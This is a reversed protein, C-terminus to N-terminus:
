FKQFNFHSGVTNPKGQFTRLDEFLKETLEPEEIFLYSIESCHYGYVEYLNRLKEALTMNRKNLFAILEAARIAASVGDKDLVKTGCMFGISEEYALLVKKADKPSLNQNGEEIEHARNAM